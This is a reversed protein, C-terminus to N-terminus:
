GRDILQILVRILTPLYLFTLLNISVSIIMIRRRTRYIALLGLLFAPISLFSGLILYQNVTVFLSLGSIVTLAISSIALRDLESQQDCDQTIPPEYPNM